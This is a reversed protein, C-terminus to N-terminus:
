TSRAPPLSFLRRPRRAIQGLVDPQRPRTAPRRRLRGGSRHIISGLLDPEDPGFAPLLPRGGCWRSIGGPRDPRGTDGPPLLLRRRDARRGVNRVLVLGAPLAARRLSVPGHRDAPS